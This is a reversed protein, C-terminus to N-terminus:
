GENSLLIENDTFYIMDINFYNRGPNRYHPTIMIQIIRMHIITIKITIINRGNHGGTKM